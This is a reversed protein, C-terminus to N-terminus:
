PQSLWALQFISTSSSNQYKAEPMKYYGLMVNDGRYCIEGVGDEDANIIKLEGGPLVM